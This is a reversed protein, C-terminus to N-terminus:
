TLTNSKNKRSLRYKELGNYFEDIQLGCPTRQGIVGYTDELDKVHDDWNCDDFFLMQDFPVKTKKHLSQFHTTKRSTLHGSRGIESCDLLDDISVGPIIEINQICQRSYSPQLSTSAVAILTNKYQKAKNLAIERLAQRAGDYLYVTQSTGPVRLGIVGVEENTDIDTSNKIKNKTARKPQKKSRRKKKRKGSDDQDDTSSESSASNALPNLNGRVPIAPMDYLEHMEPTWLCDDLDFVIMSPLIIGENEEVTTEDHNDDNKVNKTENNSM